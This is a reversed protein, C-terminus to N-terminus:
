ADHLVKAYAAPSINRGSLVAVLRGHQPVRGALVAALGAAGAGEAVLGHHVFLWRIAAHIEDDTVHTLTALDAADRLVDPTPCEAEINGLLGDAISDGIECPVVTGAKVATSVARSVASEVAVIRTNGRERAWLALGSALGGGGLACVVTLPEDAPLADSIETGLTSQGAIVDPHAYASVYTAGPETALALAHAEAADFGRGHLVLEVPYGRLAAIKAPSADEAVVVTVQKGTLRAAHAMGLAHNGASATVAHTGDPLASLAALAGRVKFSGTPQFTEAKLLAGPALTTPLLPTPTLHRAVAECARPLDFTPPTAPPTSM